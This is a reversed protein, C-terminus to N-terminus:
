RADCKGHWLSASASISERLLNGEIFTRICGQMVKSSAEQDFSAVLRLINAQRRAVSTKSSHCHGVFSMITIQSLAEVFM